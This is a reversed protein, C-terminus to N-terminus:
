QIAEWDEVVVPDTPDDYRLVSDKLEHDGFIDDITTYSVPSRPLVIVEVLDGPQYPLTRLRLEGNPEIIADTHFAQVIKSM